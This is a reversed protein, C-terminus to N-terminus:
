YGEADDKFLEVPYGTHLWCEESDNKYLLRPATGFGDEHPVVEALVWRWTQWRSMPGEIRERRMVVAVKLEPRLTNM